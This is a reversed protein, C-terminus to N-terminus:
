ADTIDEETLLVRLAGTELLHKGSNTMNKSETWVIGLAKATM